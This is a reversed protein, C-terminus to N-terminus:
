TYYQEIYQKAGNEGVGRSLIASAPAMEIARRAARVNEGIFLNDNILAM